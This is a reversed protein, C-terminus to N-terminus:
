GPLRASGERKRHRTEEASPAGAAEEGAKGAQQLVKTFPRRREAASRTPWDSTCGSCRRLEEIKESGFRPLFGVADIGGEIRDLIDKEAM